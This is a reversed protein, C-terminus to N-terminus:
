ARCGRHSGGIAALCPRTVATVRARARYGRLPRRLDRLRHDEYYANGRRCWQVDAARPPAPAVFAVVEAVSSTLPGARHLVWPSRSPSTPATSPTTTPSRGSSRSSRTTRCTTARSRAPRPARGRRGRAPRRGLRHREPAAAAAVPDSGASLIVEREAASRASADAGPTRYRVGVARDGEFEVRSSRADADDVELNPRKSRRACSPTPPAGAGATASTSRSCRWATRSPVTTTTPKAPHGGGREGRDPPPRRRRAPLAPEVGTSRAAPATGQGRGAATTRPAASTPSSTRGAGAPAARRAGVPRLRDPRGRVYLMANM